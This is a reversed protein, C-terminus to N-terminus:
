LKFDIRLLPTRKTASAAACRLVHRLLFFYLRLGSRFGTRRDGYSVDGPFTAEGGGGHGHYQVMSRQGTVDWFRGLLADDVYRFAQAVFGIGEGASQPTGAAM